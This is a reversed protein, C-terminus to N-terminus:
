RQKLVTESVNCGRCDYTIEDITETTPTVRALMMPEGCKKCLPRERTAMSNYALSM